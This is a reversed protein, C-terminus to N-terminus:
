GTCAAVHVGACTLVGSLRNNLRDIELCNYASWVTLVAHGLM